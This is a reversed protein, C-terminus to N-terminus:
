FNFGAILVPDAHGAKLPFAVAILVGEKGKTRLGCGASQKRGTSAVGNWVVGTDYFVTLFRYRYDVSGHIARDGGYPDLDFKNWGRLTSANGLVLREYLPARGNVGGVTFDLTVDNHDRTWEYRLRATHRTYPYDGGIARTGTRFTYNAAVDQRGFTGDEWQREFRLGSTVANAAEARGGAADPTLNDFELGASLTLGPALTVTASPAVTQRARYMAPAGPAKELAARTASDWASNYRDYELKLHVRRTKVSLQEVRARLGAYREALEDSDGVLGLTLATEGMTTTANAAGSFGQRSHYAIKPVDVDFDRRRGGQVEFEVSVHDPQRGRHIRVAVDRVRLETRMRAALRDLLGSDLKAGVVSEMDRRLERNMKSMFRASVNVSEVTYRSNVNVDEQQNWGFLAFALLLTLAAARM